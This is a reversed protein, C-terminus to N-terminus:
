PLDALAVLAQHLAADVRRRDLRVDAVVGAAAEVVGKADV